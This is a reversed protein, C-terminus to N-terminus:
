LLNRRRKAGGLPKLVTFFTSKGSGSPGVVFIVDGKYIDMSVGNLAHLDKFSKKLDKVHILPDKEPNFPAANNKM